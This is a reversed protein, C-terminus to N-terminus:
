LTIVNLFLISLALNLLTFLANFTNFEVIFFPAISLALILNLTLKSYNHKTQKHVIYTIIYITASIAYLGLSILNSGSLFSSLIFFPALILANQGAAILAVYFASAYFGSATITKAKFIIYFMIFLSLYKASQKLFTLTKHKM